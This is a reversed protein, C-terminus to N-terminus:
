LATVKEPLVKRFAEARILNKSEETRGYDSM